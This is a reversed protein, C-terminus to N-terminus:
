IVQIFKLSKLLSTRFIRERYIIVSCIETVTTKPCIISIYFNRQSLKTNFVCLYGHFYIALSILNNGQELFQQKVVYM